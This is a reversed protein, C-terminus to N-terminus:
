GIIADSDSRYLYYLINDLIIYKSAISSSMKESQLRDKLQVCEKDQSKEIVLDFGRIKLEVKNCKKDEYQHHYQAFRKPNIDNSDILNVEFTRDTIDPISYGSNDFSDTPHPLCSLMDACM